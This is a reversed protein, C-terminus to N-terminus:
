RVRERRGAVTEGTDVAALAAGLARVVESDSPRERRAYRELCSRLLVRASEVLPFEVHKAGNAFGDYVLEFRTPVELIGLVQAAERAAGSDERTRPSDALGAAARLGDASAHAYRETTRISAHGLWQRAEELRLARPMLSPAWSGQVLHSACTHRCDHFRVRRVGAAALAAHLGATDGRGRMKGGAPFVLDCTRGRRQEALAARVPELMPVRRVRGGKTPQGFSRSVVLEGRGLDVDRWRLGWLEGARLGTYVAVTYIRRQEADLDRCGLLREVEDARLWDWAEADRAIRPLRVDRAPNTECHGAEVAAELAVRLLNLANAVTQKSPRQGTRQSPTKIQEAVWARVDRPTLVDVCQSGIPAADIRARWVSRDRQVSRHVGDTERADLYQRGWERVSILGPVSATQALRLRWFEAIAGRADAEVTFTGLSVRRGDVTVRARFRGRYRTVAGLM